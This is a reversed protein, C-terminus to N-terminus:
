EDGNQSELEAEESVIPNEIADKRARKLAHLADTYDRQATDLATQSINLETVNRAIVPLMAKAVRAKHAYLRVFYADSSTVNEEDDVPPPLAIITKRKKKNIVTPANDPTPTHIPPSPSLTVSERPNELKAKADSYLSMLRRLELAEDRSETFILPYQWLERPTLNNSTIRKKATSSLGAGSCPCFTIMGNYSIEYHPVFSIGYKNIEVCYAHVRNRLSDLDVTTQTRPEM